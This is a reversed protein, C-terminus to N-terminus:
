PTRDARKWAYGPQVGETLAWAEKCPMNRELEFGELPKDRKAIFGWNGCLRHGTWSELSMEWWKNRRAEGGTM